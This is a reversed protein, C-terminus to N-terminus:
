SDKCNLDRYCLRTTTPLPERDMFAVTLERENIFGKNELDMKFVAEVLKMSSQLNMYNTM